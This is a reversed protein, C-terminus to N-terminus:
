PTCCNKMARYCISSCQSGLCQHWVLKSFCLINVSQYKLSHSFTKWWIHSWCIMCSNDRTFSMNLKDNNRLKNEKMTCEHILTLKPAYRECCNFIVWMCRVNQLKGIISWIIAYKACAVNLLNHWTSVSVESRSFNVWPIAM